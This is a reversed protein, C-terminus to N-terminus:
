KFRAVHTVIINNHRTVVPLAMVIGSFRRQLRHRGPFNTRRTRVVAPFREDM